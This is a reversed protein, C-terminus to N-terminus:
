RLALTYRPENSREALCRSPFNAQASASLPSFAPDCGIMMDPRAPTGPKPQPDQRGQSRTTQHVSSGQVQLRNAKHTRNVDYLTSQPAAQRLAFPAREAHLGVGVTSAVVLAAVVATTCGAFTRWRCM